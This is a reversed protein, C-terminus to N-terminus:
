DSFKISKLIDYFEKEQKKTLSSNDDNEMALSLIHDKHQLIATISAAPVAAGDVTKDEEFVYANDGDVKKADFNKVQKLYDQMTVEEGSPFKHGKYACVKLNISSTDNSWTKKSVSNSSDDSSVYDIASNYGEPVEIKLIDNLGVGSIKPEKPENSKESTKSCGTLLLIVLITFIVKKM